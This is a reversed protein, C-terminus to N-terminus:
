HISSDDEQEMTADLDALDSEDMEIVPATYSGNLWRGLDIDACRRSCFPRYRKVREAGCMPCRGGPKKADDDM